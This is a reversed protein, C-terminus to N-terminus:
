KIYLRSAYDIRQFWRFKKKLNFYEDVAKRSGEWHGYDDIILVGNKVLRPYLIELEKMTSHYFDTDLRLLSIKKPLNKKNNLTNLVDGQIFIFNKLSQNFSIINKKVTDIHAYCWKSNNKKIKIASNNKLDKDIEYAKTMGEFTDYAYIKKKLNNKQNLYEYLILNGGEFVGCEVLDGDLELSKIHSISQIIAWHNAASCMSFKSIKQLFNLDEKKIEAIYNEQRKYWTNKHEITYNWISLLKKFFNFLKRM